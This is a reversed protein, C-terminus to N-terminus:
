KDLQVVVSLSGTSSLMRSKHGKGHTDEVLLVSGPGFRRVEGDGAEIEWEGSIVVFMNRVSSPHWDGSWGVPAGFFAIQNAPLFPSLNLPPAPPAFETSALEAELDEFHSEGEADAYLRIYKAKM